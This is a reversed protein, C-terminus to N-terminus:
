ERRHDLGTRVERVGVGETSGIVSVRVERGLRVGDFAVCM